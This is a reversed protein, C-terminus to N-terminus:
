FTIDIHEYLGKVPHERIIKEIENIVKTMNKMKVTEAGTVVWNGRYGHIGLYGGRGKNEMDLSFAAAKKETFFTCSINLTRSSEPSGYNILNALFEERKEDDACQKIYEEKEFFIIEGSCDPCSDYQQISDDDSLERCQNCIKIKSM